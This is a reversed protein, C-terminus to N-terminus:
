APLEALWQNVLRVDEMNLTGAAQKLKLMELIYSYRSAALNRQQDYLRSLSNLV